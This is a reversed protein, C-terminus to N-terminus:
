AGQNMKKIIAQAFGPDLVAVTKRQRGIAQSLEAGTFVQQVPISRAQAATRIKAAVQKSLDTALFIVKAASLRALVLETGTTLRGARQALGLLNLVAQKNTVLYSKEHKKITLM